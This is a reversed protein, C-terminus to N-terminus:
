ARLTAGLEGELKNLIQQQVEDVEQERLTCNNSQYVIRVALSKKGTLIQEGIYVDAPSLQYVLPFDMIVSCIQQYTISDNVIVAIDRSISPYRSAPQYKKMIGILPLLKDVDIELPDCNYILEHKLM